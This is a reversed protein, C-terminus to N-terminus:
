LRMLDPVAGHHLRQGLLFATAEQRTVHRVDTALGVLTYTPRVVFYDDGVRVLTESNGEWVVTTPQRRPSSPPGDGNLSRFEELTTAAMDLLERQTALVEEALTLRDQNGYKEFNRLAIRVVELPAVTCLKEKLTSYLTGRSTHCGEFLESLNEDRDAV